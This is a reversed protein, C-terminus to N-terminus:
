LRRLLQALRAPPKEPSVVALNLRDPALVHRAIAQIETATVQRLRRRIMAPSWLRGYSLWQEGLAMMQHESNELSLEMQGIVYDRAMRLERAHPPRSRLRRLEQVVLRLARELHGPELGAAVVLDGTDHFFSLSSAVNYALGTDERLAQFLRSSMNEGLLVNLLRLAYREPAHRSCTRIGLALQAQEGAHREARLEPVRQTLRVPAFDPRPRSPLRRALRAAAARCSAPRLAGAVAVVMAPGVYHVQRHRLLRPRNLGDLTENTGTLPRGLPQDPWQMANLLEEVRHHPQDRYMAAEEKIVERERGVDEPAFRSNLVMDELVEFVAAFHEGPAKAYFCTNEEATFANLYGGLGEVAQSIERASRRRTGKFLLHEIFHSAGNLSETEYRGGVAVWLGVSVSTMGPMEVLVLTLGGPFTQITPRPSM